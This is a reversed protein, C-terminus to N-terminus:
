YFKLIKNLLIMRNLMLMLYKKMFYIELILKLKEIM